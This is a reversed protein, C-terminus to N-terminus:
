KKGKPFFMILGIVFSILVGLTIYSKTQCNKYDFFSEIGSCTIPPEIECNPPQIEWGSGCIGTFQQSVTNQGDCKYCTVETQVNQCNTPQTLSWGSACSNEFIQSTVQANACQYCTVQTAIKECSSGVLKYGDDCVTQKTVTSSKTCDPASSYTYCVKERTIGGSITGTTKWSDCYASPCSTVVPEKVLFFRDQSYCKIPETTIRSSCTTLSSPCGSAISDCYAKTTKTPVTCYGYYPYYLTGILDQIIYYEQANPFTYQIQYNYQQLSVPTFGMNWTKVLNGNPYGDYLKISESTIKCNTLDVKGNIYITTPVGKTAYTETTYISFQNSFIGQIFNIVRAFFNPQQLEVYIEDGDDSYVVKNQVTTEQFILATLIFLVLLLIIGLGIIKYNLKM